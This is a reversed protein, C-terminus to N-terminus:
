KVKITIAPNKQQYYGRYEFFGSSVACDKVNKTHSAQEWEVHLQQRGKEITRGSQPWELELRFSTKVTVWEGPLIDLETGNVVSSGVLPQTASSLVGSPSLVFKFDGQEWNVHDATQGTDIKIPDANWPIRIPGTGSNRLRVEAQVVAGIALAEKNLRVIEVTIDRPGEKPPAVIGDAM